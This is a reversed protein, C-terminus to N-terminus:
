QFQTLDLQGVTLRWRHEHDNAAWSDCSLWMNRKANIAALAEPRKSTTAHLQGPTYLSTNTRELRCCNVGVCVEQVASFAAQRPLRPSALLWPASQSFFWKNWAGRSLDPEAWLHRSSVLLRSSRKQLHRDAQTHEQSCCVASWTQIKTAPATFVCAM